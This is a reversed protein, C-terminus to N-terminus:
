LVPVVQLIRVHLCQSHTRELEELVEAECSELILQPITKQMLDGFISISLEYIPIQEFFADLGEDLHSEDVCVNDLLVIVIHPFSVLIKGQILRLKLLLQYL